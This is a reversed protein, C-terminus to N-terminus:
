ERVYVVYRAEGARYVEVERARTALAEVAQVVDEAREFVLTREARLRAWAIRGHVELRRVGKLFGEM